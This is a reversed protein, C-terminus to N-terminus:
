RPPCHGQGHMLKTVKTIGARYMADTPALKNGDIFAQCAKQLWQLQKSDNTASDNSFEQIYEDGIMYHPFAWTPNLSAAIQFEAIAERIKKQEHHIFGLQVHPKFDSSDKRIATKYQEIAKEDNHEHDKYYNGFYVYTVEFNPYKKLLYEYIKLGKQQYYAADGTKCPLDSTEFNNDNYLYGLSAHAAPLKSANQFATEAACYDGNYYAITGQLNWALLAATDGAPSEYIIKTSLYDAETLDAESRNKPAAALAAAAIYPQTQKLIAFVAGKTFTSSLVDSGILEDAANPADAPVKFSVTDHFIKKQNLRLDLSLASGTQTFEGSIEHRWTPFIFYVIADITQTSLGTNPISVELLDADTVVAPGKDNGPSFGSGMEQAAEIGELLRRPVSETTFGAKSLSEPVGIPDLKLGRAQIVTLSLLVGIVVLPILLLAYKSLLTKGLWWLTLSLWLFCRKFSRWSFWKLGAHQKSVIQATTPKPTTVPNTQEIPKTEKPM